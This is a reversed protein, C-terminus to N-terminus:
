WNKRFGKHQFGDQSLRMCWGSGSDSWIHALFSSQGSVTSFCIGDGHFGLSRAVHCLLEGPSGEGEARWGPCGRGLLTGQKTLM